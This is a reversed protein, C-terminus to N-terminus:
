RRIDSIKSLTLLYLIRSGVGIKEVVPFWCLKCENVVLEVNRSNWESSDARGCEMGVMFVTL